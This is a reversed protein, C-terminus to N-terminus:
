GHHEGKHHHASTRPNLALGPGRLDTPTPSLHGKSGSFGGRLQTLKRLIRRRIALPTPASSPTLDDPPSVRTPLPTM